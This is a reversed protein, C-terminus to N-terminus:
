GHMRARILPRMMSDKPTWYLLHHMLSRHVPTSAQDKIESKHSKKLQPKCSLGGIANSLQVLTPPIDNTRNYVRRRKSMSEKSTTTFKQM